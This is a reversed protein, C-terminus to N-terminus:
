QLEGSDSCVIEAAWKFSHPLSSSSTNLKKGTIAGDCKAYSHPRPKDRQASKELWAKFASDSKEKKDKLELEKLKQREIELAHQLADAKKKQDM